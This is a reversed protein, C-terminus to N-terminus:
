GRQREKLVALWPGPGVFRRPQVKDALLDTLPAYPDAAGLIRAARTRSNRAVEYADRIRQFQEPARDPPFEKVKRLYARRLEEDDADESVELVEYPNPAEAMDHMGSM